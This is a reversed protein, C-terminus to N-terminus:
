RFIAGFPVQWFAIEYGLPLPSSSFGWGPVETGTDSAANRSWVVTGDAANLANLIGTAGFAYLRGNHLTPTARPGAGGNSEWFRAADRHTWVPEGTTTNYCAM